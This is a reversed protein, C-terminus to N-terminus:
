YRKSLKGWWSQKTGGENVLKARTERLRHKYEKKWMEFREKVKRFEEMGGSKMESVGKASDDFDHRKQDLEKSLHDVVGGNNEVNNPTGSEGDGSDSAGLSKKAAALSKQLSAMQKQWTEEMSKMKVEHEAWRTEFERVQERLVTNEQEKQSLSMELVGLPLIPINEQLMGKNVVSVKWNRVHNYYRRALWGRFVRQIKVIAILYEDLPKTVNHHDLKKLVKYKRRSNEGRIFSQLTVIGSLLERFNPGIGGGSFFNKVKYSGEMVEKRLKELVLIQETKFYIKTYGLQYAEPVVRHQKLIAISTTLVDQCVSKKSLLCGFRNTFEQHTIRTPYRSKSMKIIDLIGSYRLQHLIIQKDFTAHLQKSNPRICRIFHPNTNQLRQILKFLQDKFKTGVTQKDLDTKLFNNCFSSSSSLLQIIDHHLTDRNKELLGTSEYNVEGAYHDVKFCGKEDNFWLSSELHHQKVKNGFTLDTAKFTNSAEDLISLLGGTKKEFLDLCGQNDVFEVKKWEIGESEYEEQEIKFLHRVFHQQLRENAYNILLQDFGNKQFSEFGYIDLISISRVNNDGKLSKNITEILWNFVSTYVFKMLADRTDIAQQHNKNTSLTVVLDKVNCGM